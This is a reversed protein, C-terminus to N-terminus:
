TWQAGLRPVACANIPFALALGRCGCQGCALTKRVSLESLVVVKVENRALLRELLESGMQVSGPRM